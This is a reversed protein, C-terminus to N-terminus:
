ASPLKRNTPIAHLDHYIVALILFNSVRAEQQIGPYADINPELIMEEHLGSARRRAKVM